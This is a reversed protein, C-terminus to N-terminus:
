ICMVGLNFIGAVELKSIGEQGLVRTEFNSLRARSLIGLIRFCARARM